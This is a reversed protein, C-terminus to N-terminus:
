GIVKTLYVLIVGIVVGVIIEIIRNGTKKAVSKVINEKVVPNKIKDKENEDLFKYELWGGVNKVREGFATLKITTFGNGQTEILGLHKAENLANFIDIPIIGTKSAYAHVDVTRFELNFSNVIMNILNDESMM